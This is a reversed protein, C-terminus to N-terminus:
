PQEKKPEKAWQNVEGRECRKIWNCNACLIQFVEEANEMTAILKYLVVHNRNRTKRDKAGTGLIHDIQLARLDDFGCRKCRNGLREYAKKKWARCRQTPTINYNQPVKKKQALV